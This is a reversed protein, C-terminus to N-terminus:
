NKKELMERADNLRNALIYTAEQSDLRFYEERTIGRAVIENPTSRNRILRKLDEKKLNQENVKM